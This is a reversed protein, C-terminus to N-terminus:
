LLQCENLWVAANTNITTMQPVVENKQATADIIDQTNTLEGSESLDQLSKTPYYTDNVSRAQELSTKATNLTQINANVREIDNLLPNSLPTISDEIIEDIDDIRNQAQSRKGTPLGDDIKDIFCARAQDLTTKAQLVSNITETKLSKYQNEKQLTSNIGPITNERISKLQEEQRQLNETAQNLYSEPDGPGSGSIARLGKTLVQTMLQAVLANTIENFSDALELQDLNTGLTNELQSEIVSGPTQVECTEGRDLGSDTYNVEGGAANEYMQAEREADSGATGPAVPGVFNDDGPRATPQCKEWSLFGRGAGLEDRKLLQKNGIRVSLENEAEFYAGYINNQPETSLSIFAPWGGQSFDGATFGNISAGAVANQTNAIVDSLTCTIKKKFPRYRFALALRIDISYPSCLFNLDSSQEIMLGIQEDVINTFFGAPNTLFAPNGDFGSNIWNVVDATLQKIMLKAAFWAFSDLSTFPVCIGLFSVGCSLNRLGADKTPIALVEANQASAKNPIIFFVSPAITAVILLATVTKKFINM